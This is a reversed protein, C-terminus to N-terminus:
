VLLKWYKRLVPEDLSELASQKYEMKNNHIMYIVFCQLHSNEKGDPSKTHTLVFPSDAYEFCAKGQTGKCDTLVRNTDFNQVIYNRFEDTM